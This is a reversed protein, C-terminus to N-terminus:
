KIRTLKDEKDTLFHQGLFSLAEKRPMPSAKGKRAINLMSIMNVCAQVQTDKTLAERYRQEWNKALEAKSEKELSSKGPKKEEKPKNHAPIHHKLASEKGYLEKIWKTEKEPIVKAQVIIDPKIGEAQIPTDNPLFYTMTTLKLACGNSVPIVEQVSGKGFSGTGVLVVPLKSNPQSSYHKLCGSFIESASATFNDILIKVPCKATFIPNTKTHYTNITKGAQNKTSAVLSGKPVFLSVMAVASDLVGGPNRRLDFICGKCNNAQAKKLLRHMQTPTNDAFMKISFYYINTKEFHYCLLNQDKIVERKIELEMPKKERLIKLKVMTGVKGRLKTVIEDSSLGKLVKGDVAVIQDGPKIGAKDSPGGQIVDIIVLYDEEPAKNMISIGIGSFKGSASEIASKYSERPFFSSHPDTKPLAAKLADQIFTATDVKKYHKQNVLHIVESFTRFWKFINKEAENYSSKKPMTYADTTTSAMPGRKQMIVHQGCLILPLLTLMTGLLARKVRNHTM